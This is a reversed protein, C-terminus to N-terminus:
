GATIEGTKLLQNGKQRMIGWFKDPSSWFSKAADMNIAHTFPIKLMFLEVFRDLFEEMNMRSSLSYVSQPFCFTGFAPEIFPHYYGSAFAIKPPETLREADLRLNFHFVGGWIPSDESGLIAGKFADPGNEYDQEIVWPKNVMSSCKTLDRIARKLDSNM